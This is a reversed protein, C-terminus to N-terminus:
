KPPPTERKPLALKAQEAQKRFWQNFSENQRYIRLQGIFEPLAAQVKADDFKPKDKLYLVLGGEQSFPIFGSAKGVEIQMERIIRQLLSVNIRSDFNTLSQTIDSFRPVDVPKVGEIKCIDAFTKGMAIGNTVNTGFASGAKRALDQAMFNKYDTTVKDSVKELPPTESPITAKRAIIYVGHPGPIPNFRIPNTEKLELAAKRIIGRLADDAIATSSATNTPTEFEDLGSTADFPKTTHVPVAKAAALKELNALKNPDPDLGSVSKPEMLANGFEAAARRASLGAFQDRISERIKKKADAESLLNGKEDKWDPRNTDRQFYQDNIIAELNTRTAMQKEADAFYNTSPFEVYSLIMREPIRYLFLRNTYFAGTAGNTIVVKDLYNSAWFLALQVEFEQYEKRYLAEAEAPTILKAGVSATAVLQRIGVEHRVYREYDIATLNQPALFRQELEALPTDKIQEHFMAAVAKDGPHIDLDKLKQILFVRSITENEISRVTQEDNGPWNGSRLFHAIKVEKQADISVQPPIPKNNMSGYGEAAQQQRGMRADSSFFFILSVSMLAILIAWLWAQHKRITGFM